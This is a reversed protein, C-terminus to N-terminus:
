PAIADAVAGHIRDHEAVNTSRDTKVVIMACGGRGFAESLAQALERASQAETVALGHLRGLAATDVGHPTGFLAEFREPPLQAAQPLFSFIGGGDNDVVVVVLDLPRSALGILANSDHLLAVDGILCAAQGGALAVGVATSLVGDIGNAGRNAMVEVGDRPASYWEVDRVPMSNSVVLRSGHPMAGLTARAVAPETPLGDSVVDAIAREAADDARRWDRLRGVGRGPTSELLAGCLISPGGRVFRDVRRDADFVRGFREVAIEIAGSAGLWEDLVKSAHPDGM